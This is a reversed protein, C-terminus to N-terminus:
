RLNVRSAPKQLEAVHHELLTLRRDTIPSGKERVDTFERQLVALETSLKAMENRNAFQMDNARAVMVALEVARSEQRKLDENLPRIAAAWLSGVAVAGAIVLSWNTERGKNVSRQLEDFSSRQESRFSVFERQFNDAWTELKGIREGHNTESSMM